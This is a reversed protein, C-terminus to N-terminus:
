KELFLVGNLLASVTGSHTDPKRNSSLRTQLEWKSVSEAWQGTDNNGPPKSGIGATKLACRSLAPQETEKKSGDACAITHCDSLASRLRRAEIAAGARQRQERECSLTWPDLACPRCTSMAASEPVKDPCKLIM